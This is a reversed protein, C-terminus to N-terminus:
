DWLGQYYKGFLRFGNKKRENWKEWGEKDFVHTDNPGRISEYLVDDGKYEDPLHNGKIDVKKWEYDIKGTHFQSEADDDLVQSFAWIMEDLVWKWRDFFLEDTHGCDKQEQTLEPAATSRLHEPVDEDDVFPSGHLTEKLQLLMPHIILSLTHDMSWTDYEDIRVIIKRKKKSDIWQCLSNLWTSALWEGLKDRLKGDWRNDYKDDYKHKDLWFFVKDAIQYPGIWNRYPGINVKM